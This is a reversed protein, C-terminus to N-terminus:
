EEKIDKVAEAQSFLIEETREEVQNNRINKVKPM